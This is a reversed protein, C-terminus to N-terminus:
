ISLASQFLSVRVEDIQFLAQCIYFKITGSNWRLQHAITEENWGALELCLYAFVQVSHTSVAEILQHVLRNEESHTLLAAGCLAFTMQAESFLAPGKIFLNTLLLIGSHQHRPGPYVMTQHGQNCIASPFYPHPYLQLCVISLRGFVKPATSTYVLTPRLISWPLYLELRISSLFSNKQLMLAIPHGGNVSAANFTVTSLLSEKIIQSQAYKSVQAGTFKGLISVDWVM